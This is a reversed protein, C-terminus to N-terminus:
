IGRQKLYENLEAIGGQDCPSVVLDALQKTTPDAQGMAVGLSAFSIMERDNAADGVAIIQEREYGTQEMTYQISLAKSVGRKNIDVFDPHWRVLTYNELESQLAEDLYHPGFFVAQYLIDPIKGGLTVFSLDEVLQEWTKTAATSASLVVDKEGVFLVPLTHFQALEILHNRASEDLPIRHITTENKVTIQGNLCTYASFLGSDKIFKPVNFYHRGTALFLDHGRSKIDQLADRTEEPWLKADFPLLTGDCDFFLAKKM